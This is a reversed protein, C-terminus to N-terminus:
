RVHSILGLGCGCLVSLVGLGQFDQTASSCTHGSRLIWYNESEKADEATKM